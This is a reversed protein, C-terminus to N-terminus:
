ASCLEENESEATRNKKRRNNNVLFTFIFVIGAWLVSSPRAKVCCSMDYVSKEKNFVCSVNIKDKKLTFINGSFSLINYLLINVRGFKLACECADLDSIKFDIFIKTVSIRKFASKITKGGATILSLIFDFQEGKNEPIFKKRISHKYEDNKEKHAKKVGAKKRRKGSKKFENNEKGSQKEKEDGKIRIKFFLYKLVIETKGNIYSFCFRFPSLLLVLLIFLIVSIITLATM